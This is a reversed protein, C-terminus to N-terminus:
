VSAQVDGNTLGAGQGVAGQGQEALPCLVLQVEGQAQGDCVQNQRLACGAGEDQVVGQQGEVVLAQVQQPLQSLAPLDDEEAALAPLLHPQCPLRAHGDDGEGASSVTAM